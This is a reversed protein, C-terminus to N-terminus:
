DFELPATEGKKPYVRQIRRICENWRHETRVSKMLAIVGVLHKQLENHGPDDTLWQHHKVSRNGMEDKPNRKELEERLGPALRDWVLNNTYRGVVQPRNVKMGKWQWGKIRFIEKYFEDPFRKSWAAREKLLFRDLIKHLDTRDRIEQYGTVEDILAIIGVTALGRILVDARKAIHEQQKTM